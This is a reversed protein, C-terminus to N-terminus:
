GTTFNLSDKGINVMDGCLSFIENVMIGCFVGDFDLVNVAVNRGKCKEVFVVLQNFLNRKAFHVHVGDLAKEATVSIKRKFALMALVYEIRFAPSSLVIFSFQLTSDSLDSKTM